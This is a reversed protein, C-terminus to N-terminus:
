FCSFRCVYLIMGNSFIWIPYFIFFTIIEPDNKWQKKQKHSITLLIEQLGKSMWLLCM